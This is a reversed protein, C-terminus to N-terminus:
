REIKTNKKKQKEVKEKEAELTKQEQERKLKNDFDEFKRREDEIRQREQQINKREDELRSTLRKFMEIEQQPRRKAEDLLQQYTNNMESRLTELYKKEENLSQVENGYKQEM